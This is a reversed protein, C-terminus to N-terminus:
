ILNKKSNNLNLPFKAKSEEWNHFCTNSCFKACTVVAATAHALIQLLWNALFLIVALHIKWPILSTISLTNAFHAEWYCPQRKASSMELYMKKFSFKKYKAKFRMSTQEQPNWWWFTLMPEPLPKTGLLSCAMVQNHYHHDVDRVGYPM